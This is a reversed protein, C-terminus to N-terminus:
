LGAASDADHLVRERRLPEGFLNRREGCRRLAETGHCARGPREAAEVGGVAKGVEDQRHRPGARGLLNGGNQVPTAMLSGRSMPGTCKTPMPPIPMLPM